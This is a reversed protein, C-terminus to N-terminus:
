TPVQVVQAPPPAGDGQRKARAAPFRLALSAALAMAFSAALFSSRLHFQSKMPNGRTRRCSETTRCRDSLRRDTAAYALQVARYDSQANLFDMLSAGGHQYAYTVTDRVRTAQDNYKAKYPKLLAINSDCRSRLGLGCRQLGARARGRQGAPQPRHRDAHAEERGPQPRLHAASHQRQRRADPVGNPNNNSSNYTYWASFTPDTSGNAMPWSTIPRRSSFRRCRRRCTPGRISRSRASTTSRSSRTAFLRLHRDRRVAGGAHPRQATAAAPDQRHAPQRDRDAIESEYQVRLLEIRDLDIQAIDGAKFRDRSIEIIHDYYELDAKALDLVAKAELTQVFATRLTFLM